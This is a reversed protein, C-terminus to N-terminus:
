LLGRGIQQSGDKQIGSELLALRLDRRVDLEHNKGRSAVVRINMFKLASLLQGFCKGYFIEFTTQIVLTHKWRYCDATFAIVRRTM